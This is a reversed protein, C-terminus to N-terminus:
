DASYVAAYFGAPDDKPNVGEPIKSTPAYIFNKYETYFNGPQGGWTGIYPAFPGKQEYNSNLPIADSSYWLSGDEKYAYVWLNNGRIYAGFTAFTRMPAGGIDSWRGLLRSGYKTSWGEGAYNPLNIHPGAPQWRTEMIDIERGVGGQASGSGDLYNVPGPAFNRRESLYFTECLEGGGNSGIKIDIQWVGDYAVGVGGAYGDGDKRMPYARSGVNRGSIMQTSQRISQARSDVTWRGPEDMGYDQVWFSVGPTFTADSNKMGSQWGNNTIIPPVFKSLTGLIKFTANNIYQLTPIQSFVYNPDRGNETYKVDSIIGEDDELNGRLTFGFYGLYASPNGQNDALYIKYGVNAWPDNDGSAAQELHAIVLDDNIDARSALSASVAQKWFPDGGGKINSRDLELIINHKGEDFFSFQNHIHIPAALAAGTCFISLGLISLIVKFM